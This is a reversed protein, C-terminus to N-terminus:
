ILVAANRKEKAMFLAEDVRRLCTDSTDTDTFETVGASITIKPLEKDSFSEVSQRLELAKAYADDMDTRPLLIIFEEGGWRALIDNIRLKQGLIHVLAILVLDGVIHGYTDNVQKFHDIDILIVSLHDGYRMKNEIERVFSEDFKQRNYIKTLHDHYAFYKYEEKESIHSTIDTFVIIYEAQNEIKKLTIEFDRLEGSQNVLSVMRRKEPRDYLFDTWLESTDIADHTFFGNHKIFLRDLCAYARNFEEVSGIAFFELFANNCSQLEEGNTLIVPNPIANIVSLITNDIILKM